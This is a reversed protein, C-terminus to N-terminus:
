SKTLSELAKQADANGQEAALRYWRVAEANDQTVGRGNALMWGLKNQAYANGQEAALRYWRMAEIYDQKVGLGIYLINGLINQADANGQAAALHYWRVAEAYDKSVGQGNAFMLGLKYQAYADGQDAALRYWRMAEIYDQAVGDGYYLMYGLKNQAYADGQAAALRYWRVAETYDQKVGHGHYLMNGLNIQADKNGQEAALHYWRVAEANDKAVGEGNAFMWGLKNQAYADGHAAAFSYWRMAETYDQKVGHGYYLMYSLKNQAYEDGQAAALRYWRAAEEYDQIIGEGSYFAQGLIFQLERDNISSFDIKLINEIEQDLINDKPVKSIVTLYLVKKLNEKTEYSDIHKFNSDEKIFLNTSRKLISQWLCNYVQKNNDDYYKQSGECIYLCCVHDGLHMLIGLDNEPNFTISKFDHYYNKFSVKENLFFVSLLNAFLYQQALNTGYESQTHIIPHNFLKKFNQAIVLECREPNTLDYELNEPKEDYLSIKSDYRKIFKNMINELFIYKEDDDLIGPYFNILQSNSELEGIRYRVFGNFDKRPIGEIVRKLHNSTAQGFTFMTLISAMWCTGLLNRYAKECFSIGGLQNKLQIYKKKYKLYKNYYM